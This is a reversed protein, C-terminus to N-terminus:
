NPGCRIRRPPPMEQIATTDVKATEHYTLPRRTTVILLLYFIIALVDLVGVVLSMSYALAM